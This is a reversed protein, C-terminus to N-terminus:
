ERSKQNTRTKKLNRSLEYKSKRKGAVSRNEGWFLRCNWGQEIPTNKMGSGCRRGLPERKTAWKAKDYIKEDTM